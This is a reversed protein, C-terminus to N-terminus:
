AGCACIEFKAFRFIDFAFRLDFEACRFIDVNGARLRYRLGGRLPLLM